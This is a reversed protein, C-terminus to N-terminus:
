RLKSELCGVTRSLGGSRVGREGRSVKKSQGVIVFSAGRLKTAAQGWGPSRGVGPRAGSEGGRVNNGWHVTWAGGLIPTGGGLMPARSEM